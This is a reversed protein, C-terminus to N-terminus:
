KTILQIPAAQAPNKGVAGQLAQAIRAMDDPVQGTLYLFETVRVTKRPFNVCCIGLPVQAGLAVQYFGSRWGPLWKRTGEPALALWFFADADKSELLKRTMAGVAGQNVHREVPVSGVWRMWRGLLPIKFLSDKGWFKVPLGVAWKALILIVFDWNSTHPYVILVGQRSPIGDFHITWGLRAFLWRALTSGQVRVLEPKSAVDVVCSSGMPLGNTM